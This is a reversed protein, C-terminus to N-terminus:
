FEVVWNEGDDRACVSKKSRDAESACVPEPRSSGQPGLGFVGIRRGFGKDFKESTLRVPPWDCRVGVQQEQQRLLRARLFYSRIFGPGKSM